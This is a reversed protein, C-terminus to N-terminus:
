TFSWKVPKTNDFSVKDNTKNTESVGSSTATLNNQMLEGNNSSTDSVNFIGRKTPRNSNKNPLREKM